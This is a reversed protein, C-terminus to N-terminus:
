LLIAKLSRVFIPTMTYVGEHAAFAFTNDVGCITCIDPFLHIIELHVCVRYEIVVMSGCHGGESCLVIRAFGGCRSVHQLVGTCQRCFFLQFEIVVVVM